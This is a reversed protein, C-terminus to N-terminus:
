LDGEGEGYWFDVAAIGNEDSIVRNAALRAAEGNRPYHLLRFQVIEGSAPNGNKTVKLTIPTKSKRGTVGVMQSMGPSYSMQTMEYIYGELRPSHIKDSEMLPPAQESDHRLSCSALFCFMLAPLRLWLFYRTSDTNPM